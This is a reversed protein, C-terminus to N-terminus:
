GTVDETVVELPESGGVAVPEGPKKGAAIARANDNEARRSMLEDLQGERIEVIRGLKFDKTDKIFDAERKSTTRYVGDRFHINMAEQIIQGTTQARMEAQLKNAGIVLGRNFRAFFIWEKNTM